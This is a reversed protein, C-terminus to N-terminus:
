AILPESLSMNIRRCPMIQVLATKTNISCTFWNCLLRLPFAIMEMHFLKSYTIQFIVAVKDRGWGTSRTLSLINYNRGTWSSLCICHYHHIYIRKISIYLTVCVTCTQIENMKTYFVASESRSFIRSINFIDLIYHERLLKDNMDAQKLSEVQPQVHGLHMYVICSTLRRNGFTSELRWRHCFTCCIDDYFRCLFNGDPNDAKKHRDGAYDGQLYGNGRM